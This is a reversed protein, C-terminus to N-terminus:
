QNSIEINVPKGDWSFNINLWTNDFNCTTKGDNTNGKEANIKVSKGNIKVAAPMANMRIEFRMTRTAPMNEWKGTRTVSVTTKANNKSGKYTILEYKGDTLSKSNLGNDEYQVFTSKGDPYYRVVYNAGNYNDTSTLPKTMPIFSGGKAFVPM